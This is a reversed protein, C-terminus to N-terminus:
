WSSAASLDSSLCSAPRFRSDSLGDCHRGWCGDPAGVLCGLPLADGRQQPGAANRHPIQSPGAFCRARDGSSASGRFRAVTAPHRGWIVPSPGSAAKSGSANASTPPGLLRPWRPSHPWAGRLGKRSAGMQRAPPRRTGASTRGLAAARKRGGFRQGTPPFMPRNPSCRETPLPDCLCVQGAQM